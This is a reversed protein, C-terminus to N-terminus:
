LIELRKIIEDTIYIHSKQKNSLMEKNTFVILTTKSKPFWYSISTGWQDSNGRYWIAKLPDDSTQSIFMVYAYFLNVGELSSRVKVQPQLLDTLTKESLIKSTKIAEQFKVMDLATSFIGSAGINGYDRQVSKPPKGNAQVAKPYAISPYNVLFFTQNMDLPVLITKRIYDEWTMGTLQETIIGLLSYNENSYIFKKGPAEDLKLKFIKDLAKQQTEQHDAVYHQGIGSQHVLLQHVTINAKDAPVDDFYKHLSDKLSLKGEEVLKMIGVSTITKTISALNYAMTKDTPVKRKINSYGYGQYIATDGDQILLVTGNFNLNKEAHDLFDAISNPVPLAKQATCSITFGLILFVPQIKMFFRM